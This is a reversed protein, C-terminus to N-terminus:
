ARHSQRYPKERCLSRKICTGKCLRDKVTNAASSPRSNASSCSSPMAPPPKVASASWSSSSTTVLFGIGLIVIAFYNFLHYGLVIVLGGSVRWVAKMTKIENVRKQVADYYKGLAKKRAEGNCFEGNIVRKALSDITAQSAGSSGGSSTGSGGSDAGGNYHLVDDWTGRYHVQIRSEYGTQDGAKGSVGGTESSAFHGPKGNGLAM